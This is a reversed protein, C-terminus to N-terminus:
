LRNLPNLMNGSLCKFIVTVKQRQTNVQRLYNIDGRNIADIILQGESNLLDAFTNSEIMCVFRKTQNDILIVATKSDTEFTM